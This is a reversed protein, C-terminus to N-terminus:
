DTHSSLGLRQVVQREQQYAARLARGYDEPGLYAIEQDYLALEALHAPDNMASRFADHLIQVIQPAMGAPGAVGYPSSAVIDHGLEMLTPVTPWRQSRHEGFTVLLRLRGSDVFPAFGNSNVGAMVQGSSVAIMQEATGKYPVHIYTLGRKGFLEELVLHPTTGTGNTAISLAGPHARAYAFLDDLSRFGSATPVVVGFTVGSIQIIPTTDRIPDWALKRMWPARLVTQPMQALTYGDPAAHQLIPMVLTGGAGGRNQVLIKQGLKRALAEALVRFSLDTAGGAPWPLWLNIPRTPFGAPPQAPAAAWAPVTTSLLAPVLGLLSRRSVAQTPNAARQPQPRPPRTGPKM